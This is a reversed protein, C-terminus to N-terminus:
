FLSYMLTAIAASQTLLITAGLVVLFTVVPWMWYRRRSRLFGWLELLSRM